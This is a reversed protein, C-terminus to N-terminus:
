SAKKTDSVTSQTSSSLTNTDKVFIVPENNLQRKLANLSVPCLSVLVCPSLFLSHGANLSSSNYIIYM